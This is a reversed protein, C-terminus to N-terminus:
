FGVLVGFVFRREFPYDLGRERKISSLQFLDTMGFSVKLREFGGKRLLEPRFSYSLSFNSFNIYNEDQVFRTSIYSPSFDSIDKYFTHDGTKKWRDALARRDANYKPDAGEVKNVLTSNYAQGGLRYQFSLNLEWNKWFLNTNINGFLTPETDGVTIKDSPSWIYTLDGNITRYLEKGTAPDIGLSTVAKIISMSQGEEFQVDPTYEKALNEANLGKLANSIETLKSKNSSAQLTVNWAFDKTQFIQGVVSFDFGNNKITGINEIYKNGVFGLSPAVTVSTLSGDTKRNYYNATFSLRSDFFSLDIGINFMGQKQWRLNPNGFGLLKTPITGKYPDQLFEYMTKADYENFDQNGTVGYSARVKFQNVTSKIGSWFKENHINWGAGTSWFLAFKNDLGFRSNGDYRVSADAFFRNDFIYNVNAFFGVSKSTGESSTPKSGEPYKLAFGPDIFMDTPFGEMKYTYSRMQNMMIESGAGVFIVHKDFEMNYQITVNGSYDMGSGNGQSMEGRKEIEETKEYKSSKPSTYSENNTVDKTIKFNGKIRLDKAAFWDVSINEAVSQTKRSDIFPLNADYLPNLVEDMFKPKYNGNDDFPTDYPNLKTYQSFSGFPSNDESVNDYTVYNNITIKDKIRYILRFGAAFRERDSGKMVGKINDYNANVSYRIVDDGGEVTLSHNQVFANRIPKSLWYTDVGRNVQSLRENYKQDLATQEILDNNRFAGDRITKTYIGAYREFELKERANMLDYDTLDAIAMTPRFNYTVKLKGPEPAKTEIVVVGNAARSGYLISASADKLISISKIRNMDMDFIYQASVQFGDLIFVPATSENNFTGKGRITFDPMKNPNSGSEINKDIKFSADLNGIIDLVNSSGYRSIEKDTITTVAGAFGTKDRNFYGTVVVDDVNMADTFMKIIMNSQEKTVIMKHTKFGVFSIEIEHGVAVKVSFSGKDDTITGGKGNIEILTAGVIPDGKEDIVKGSLNVVKAETQTVNVPSKVIVIEKDNLNYIFGTGKFIKDLVYDLPKNNENVSIPSMSSLQDANYVFSVKTQKQLELLLDKVTTSSMKVTVNTQLIVSATAFTSFNLVLIALLIFHALM